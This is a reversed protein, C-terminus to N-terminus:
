EIEKTPPVWASAVAAPPFWGWRRQWSSSISNVVLHAAVLVLLGVVLLQRMEWLRDFPHMSNFPVQAAERAARLVRTRLEAPPAPALSSRLRTEITRAEREM